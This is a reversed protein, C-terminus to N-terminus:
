LINGKIPQYCKTLQKIYHLKKHFDFIEAMGPINKRKQVYLICIQVNLSQGCPM